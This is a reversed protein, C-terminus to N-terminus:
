PEQPNPLVISRSEILSSLYTYHQCSRTSDVVHSPREDGFMRLTIIRFTCTGLVKGLILGRIFSYVHPFVHEVICLVCITAFLM